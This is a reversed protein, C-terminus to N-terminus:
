FHRLFRMVWCRRKKKYNNYCPTPIPIPIPNPPPCQQVQSQVPAQVAVQTREQNQKEQQIKQNNQQEKFAVMLQDVVKHLEEKTTKFTVQTTQENEINELLKLKLNAKNEKQQKKVKQELMNFQEKSVQSGYDYCSDRRNQLIRENPSLSRQSRNTTNSFHVIQQQPLISTQQM